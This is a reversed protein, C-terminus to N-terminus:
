TTNIPPNSTNAVFVLISRFTPSKSGREFNPNLCPQGVSCLIVSVGYCGDHVRSMPQLYDLHISLSHRALASAGHIHTMRASHLGRLQLAQQLFRGPRLRLRIPARELKIRTCVIGNSRESFRVTSLM